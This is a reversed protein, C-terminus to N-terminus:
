KAERALHELFLRVTRGVGEGYYDIDSTDWQRAENAAGAIANCVQETTFDGVGEPMRKFYCIWCEGATLQGTNM